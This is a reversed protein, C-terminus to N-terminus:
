KKYLIVFFYNNSELLLQISKDSVYFCLIKIKWTECHLHILEIIYYIQKRTAQVFQSPNFSYKQRGSLKKCLCLNVSPCCIIVNFSFYCFCFSYCLFICFFISCM